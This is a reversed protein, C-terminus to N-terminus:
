NGSILHTDLLVMHQIEVPIVTPHEHELVGVEVTSTQAETETLNTIKNEIGIM